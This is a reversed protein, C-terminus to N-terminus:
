QSEAEPAGSLAEECAKRVPARRSTMGRELVTRALPSGIRALCRAVASRHLEQQRSFWNAKLLEGELEAVVDDTGCSGLAHYIARKEEFPRQEFDPALMFGLLLAAM